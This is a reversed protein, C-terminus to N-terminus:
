KMTQHRLKTIHVDYIAYIHADIYDLTFDWKYSLDNLLFTFKILSAQQCVDAM